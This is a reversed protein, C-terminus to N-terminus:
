EINQIQERIQEILVKLEVSAGTTDVHASKSGLTNAERNLEQMLFDLRRGIPEQQGLVRTVETLHTELRDLEEAVDLRQILLACEQELRAPDLNGAIEQIRQMQRARIAEIIQPVRTRTARTIDGISACRQLVLERLREGERTRSETMQSLAEELAALAAASLVDPDLERSELVGPWRLVELPNLPAHEGMLGSVVNAADVVRRALEENLRIQMDVQGSTDLRLGADVKGRNLRAAIRTRVEGELSRLEEPLRLGIEVHRHNVSRLEWVLRGWEGASEHRAFATMSRAM